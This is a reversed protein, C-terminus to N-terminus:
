LLRQEKTLAAHPHPPDGELRLVAAGRPRHRGHQVREGVVGAGVLLRYGSWSVDGGANVKRLVSGAPYSVEPLLRPGFGRTPGFRSLPPRDGLAEHPRLVNYVERRWREVDRAFAAESTRDARPWVERELTATCANWRARRRLITPDAM